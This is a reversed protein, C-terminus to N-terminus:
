DDTVHAHWVHTGDSLKTPHPHIKLTTNRPLIMEREHAFDSHSGVYMGHQGKKMHIHLVHSSDGRGAFGRAKEKEISTSTYAPLKVKNQSNKAAEEGPHWRYTGHYVHVDHELKSHKLANDLGAVHHEHKLKQSDTWEKDHETHHDEHRFPDQGSAHQILNHNLTASSQTYKFVHDHDPHEKWKDHSMNLKDHVADPHEGLHHNDHHNEWEREDMVKHPGHIGTAEKLKSHKGHVPQAFVVTAKRSRPPKAHGGHVPEALIVTPKSSKKAESMYERFRRM